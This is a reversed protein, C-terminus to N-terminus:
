VHWVLTIYEYIKINELDNKLWRQFHQAFVKLYDKATKRVTEYNSFHNGRSHNKIPSFLNIKTKAFITNHKMLRRKYSVLDNSVHVFLLLSAIQM